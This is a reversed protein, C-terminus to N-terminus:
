KNLKNEILADLSWKGGGFVVLSFLMLLYYLPIEFGNDSAQFGNSWHVTTIAVLMIVILPISILRTGLGLFLLIVGLAETGAAIYANFTPLPYGLSEFWGAVSTIDNFKMKAPGYFGYALVLRFFLLPLGKLKSVREVLGSYM